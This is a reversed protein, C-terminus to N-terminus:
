LKLPNWQFLELFSKAQQFTHLTTEQGSAPLLADWRRSKSNTTTTRHWRLVHRLSYM